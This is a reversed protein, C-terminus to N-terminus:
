PNTRELEERKKSLQTNASQVDGIQKKLSTLEERLVKNEEAYAKIRPGANGAAKLVGYIMGVLAAFTFFSLYTLLKVRDALRDIKPGLENM